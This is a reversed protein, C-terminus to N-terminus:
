IYSKRDDIRLLGGITFGESEMGSCILKGEARGDAGEKIKLVNCSFTFVIKLRYLFYRLGIRTSELPILSPNTVAMLWKM